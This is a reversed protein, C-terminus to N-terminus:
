RPNELFHNKGVLLFGFNKYLMKYFGFNELNFFFTFYTTAGHRSMECALIQNIYRNRAFM